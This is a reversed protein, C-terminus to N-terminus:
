EAQPQDETVMFLEAALQRAQESTLVWVGLMHMGKWLELNVDTTKNSRKKAHFYIENSMRM